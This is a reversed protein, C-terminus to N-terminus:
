KSFVEKLSPLKFTPKLVGKPCARVCTLCMICEGNSIRVGKKIFSRIPIGM